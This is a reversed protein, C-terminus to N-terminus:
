CKLLCNYTCGHTPPLSSVRLVNLLALGSLLLRGSAELYVLCVLVLLHLPLHPRGSVGLGGWRFGLSEFLVRLVIWMLWLPRKRADSAVVPSGSSVLASSSPEVVNGSDMEIENGKENENGASSQSLFSLSSSGNEIEIEDLEIENANGSKNEIQNDNEIGKENENGGSSHSLFSLSSSGPDVFIGGEMNKGIGNEIEIENEDLEIENANGSKNEIQNDNENTVANTEVVNNDVVTNNAVVVTNVVENNVMENNVVVNNAPLDRARLHHESADSFEDESEVDVDCAPLAVPSVGALVPALISQSKSLENLQNDRLDVESSVAQSAASASAAAEAPTPDRAVVTEEDRYGAREPCDRSLHGEQRCQFCKGRLPCVRAIHGSENCLDCVQQQGAYSIKVQFEGIM